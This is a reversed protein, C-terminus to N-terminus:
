RFYYKIGGGYNLHKARYGSAFFQWSVQPALTVFNQGYSDGWLKLEVGANAAFSVDFQTETEVDTATLSTLGAMMELGLYPAFGVDPLNTFLYNGQAKLNYQNMFPIPVMQWALETTEFIDLQKIKTYQFGVLYEFRGDRLQGFNFGFHYTSEYIQDADLKYTRGEYQFDLVGVGEYKGIPESLGGYVEFINYRRGVKVMAAQSMSTVAIVAVVATIVAIRGKKM